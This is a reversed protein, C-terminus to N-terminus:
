RLKFFIKKLTGIVVFSAFRSTDIRFYCRGFLSTLTSSLLKQSLIESYSARSPQTPVRLLDPQGKLGCLDEQRQRGLAPILSTFM